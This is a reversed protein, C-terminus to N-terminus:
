LAEEMKVILVSEPLETWGMKGGKPIPVFTTEAWWMLKCRGCEPTRKENLREGCYPCTKM